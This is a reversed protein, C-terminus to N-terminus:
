MIQNTTLYTQNRNLKTELIRYILLSTYGINTTTSRSILNESEDLKKKLNCTLTINSIDQNENLKKVYPKPMPGLIQM